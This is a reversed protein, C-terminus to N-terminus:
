RPRVHLMEALAAAPLAQRGAVISGGTRLGGPEGGTILSALADAAHRTLLPQRLPFLAFLLEVVAQLANRHM